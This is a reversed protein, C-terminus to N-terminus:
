RAFASTNFNYGKAREIEKQNRYITQGDLKLVNEIIQTRGQNQNEYNQFNILMASRLQEELNISARTVKPPTITPTAVASINFSKSQLANSVNNYYKDTDVKLADLKIEPLRFDFKFGFVSLKDDLFIFISNIGKIVGNVMNEFGTVIFNIATGFTGKISNWVIIWTNVFTDKLWTGFEKLENWLNTFIRKFEEIYPAIVEKLTQKFSLWAEKITEIGERFATEIPTWFEMFAEKILRWQETFKEKISEWVESFKDKIDEWTEKFYTKIKDLIDTFYTKILNWNHEWDEKFTQFSKKFAEINENFEKKIANIKETVADKIKSWKESFWDVIPSFINKINEWLTSFADKLSNWVKLTSDKISNWTDSSFDKITNWTNIFFDKVKQWIDVLSAKFNNWGDVMKQWTEDSIGGIGRIALTIAEFGLLLWGFPATPPFFVMIAGAIIFLTDWIDWDLIDGLEKFFNVFSKLGNQVNEPLLNWIARGVVALANGIAGFINKIGGWIAGFIQGLRELGKRFNESENYLEVLRALLVGITAGWVGALGTIAAPLKVGFMALLSSLGGILKSGVKWGLIGAGVKTVTDVIKELNSNTESFDPMTWTIEGTEENVQKTFGLWELITDRVESAKMRVQELGNYYEELGFDIEGITGGVGGGGGSPTPEPTQIAHLEDFPLIANEITKKLKNVAGTTDEVTDEVGVFGNEIDKIPPAEYGVLTALTELVVRLAMVFGNIYPLIKGITGIFVKGLARGVAVIQDGLIRLQNAPTEITKAFDEHALSSQRVLVSYRLFMKEGQTMARVNKEIGLRLAEQKLSAETLDIGYKYVTETQGLLGSRLDAIVQSVPANFLSSMDTSLRTVSRGLIAANDSTFGMARALLTFNAVSQQLFTVDLGVGESIQNLTRSTEVANEGMAVNFLNAVEIVDMAGQLAQGLSAISAYIGGLKVLNLGSLSKRLNDTEKAARNADTAINRMSKRNKETSKTLKESSVSASKTKKGFDSIAKASKKTSRETGKLESSLRRLSALAKDVDAVIELGLKEM